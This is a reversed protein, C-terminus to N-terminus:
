CSTRFSYSLVEALISESSYVFLLLPFYFLPHNCCCYHGFLLIVVVSMSYIPHTELDLELTDQLVNAPGLGLRQHALTPVSIPESNSKPTTKPIPSHVSNRMSPTHESNPNPLKRSILTPSQTGKCYKNLLMNM